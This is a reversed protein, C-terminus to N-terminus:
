FKYQFKGHWKNLSLVNLVRFVLVFHLTRCDNYESPAAGLLQTRFLSLIQKLIM